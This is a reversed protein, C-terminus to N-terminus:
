DYEVGKHTVILRTDNRSKIEPLGVPLHSM